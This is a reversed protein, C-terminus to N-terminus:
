FFFHLPNGPPGTVLVGHKWQWPSPNLGQDPFQSGALRVTHGFCFFYLNGVAANNITAYFLFLILTDVLFSDTMYIPQLMVCLLGLCFPIFVALPGFSQLHLGTLTFLLCVSQFLRYWVTLLHENQPCAGVDRCHKENKDNTHIVSSILFVFAVPLLFHSLESFALLLFCNRFFLWWTFEASIPM